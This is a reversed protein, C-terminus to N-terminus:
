MRNSHRKINILDLEDLGPISKQMKGEAIDAERLVECLDEARHEISEAQTELREELNEGFNEMRDAFEDMDGDGSVIQSSIAVLLKGTAESVMNEIRDEFKDEWAFDFWGDDEFDNGSVRISGDETYFHHEMEGRMEKLTGQFDRVLEDDPGLLEGFVEGVATGALDISDSVLNVTMPVAEDIATRYDDVYQQQDDDLTVAEGNITLQNDPAITMVSGSDMEVTIMKKNYELNGHLNVDCEDNHAMVSTTLLTSVALALARLKM